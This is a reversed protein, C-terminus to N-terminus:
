RNYINFTYNFYITLNLVAEDYIDSKFHSASNPGAAHSAACAALLEYYTVFLPCKLSESVKEIYKNKLSITKKKLEFQLLTTNTSLINAM